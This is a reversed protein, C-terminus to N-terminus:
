VTKFKEQLLAFVYLLIRIKLCLIHNCSQRIMILLVHGYRCRLIRWIVFIHLKLANINKSVYTNVIFKFDQFIQRLLTM